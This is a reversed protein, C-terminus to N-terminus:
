AGGFRGRSACSRSDPRSPQPKDQKEARRDVDGPRPPSGGFKATAVRPPTTNLQVPVALPPVGPPRQSRGQPQMEHVVDSEESDSCSARDSFTFESSMRYVSHAQVGHEDLHAAAYEPNVEDVEEIYELFGQGPLVPEINVWAVTGADIEELGECCCGDKTLCGTGKCRSDQLHCSAQGM